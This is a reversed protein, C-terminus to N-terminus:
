GGAIGQLGSGGDVPLPVGAMYSAADSCLWLVAAAVEEPRGIRNIPVHMLLRQEVDPDSALM